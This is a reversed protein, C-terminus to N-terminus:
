LYEYATLTGVEVIEGVRWGPLNSEVVVARFGALQSGFYVDELKDAIYPGFLTFVRIRM